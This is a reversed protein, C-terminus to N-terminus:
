SKIATLTLQSPDRQDGRYAEWTFETLFHKEAEEVFDKLQQISGKHPFNEILRIELAM